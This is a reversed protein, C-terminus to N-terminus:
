AAPLRSAHWRRVQCKGARKAEYMAQDARDVLEAAGVRAEGDLQAGSTVLGISAGVRAPKGHVTYPQDIAALVRQAVTEAEAQSERDLLLVAFEDGGLRVVLDDPRVNRRMRQAVAVLLEDGAAHGLTDNVVKFDDLDVLMVAVPRAQELAEGLRLGLLRRNGLGTVPDHLAAHRYRAQEAHLRTFAAELREYRLVTSAQNALTDLLRAEGRGLRGAGEIPEGVLLVGLVGQDDVLRAGLADGVSRHALYGALADRFSGDGGLPALRVAEDGTVPQLGGVLDDWRTVRVIGDTPVDGPGGSFLVLEAFRCHFAALSHDLLRTLGDEVSGAAVLDRPPPNHYVVLEAHPHPPV